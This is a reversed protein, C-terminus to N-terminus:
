YCFFCNFTNYFIFAKEGRPAGNDDVLQCQDGVVTRALEAPNALKVKMFWAVGEAERHVMGPDGELEKNVEIVEGDVPCYLEAVAKVSEISGIESHAEVVTGVEPLEVFVVDGLSDQAFDTIGITVTKGDILIWEHDESYYKM